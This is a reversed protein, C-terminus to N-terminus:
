FRVSNETYLFGRHSSLFFLHLLVAIMSALYTHTSERIEGSKAPRWGAQEGVILSTAPIPNNSQSSKKYENM